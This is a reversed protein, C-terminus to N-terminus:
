MSVYISISIFISIYTSVSLSLSSWMGLCVRKKKKSYKPVTIPECATTLFCISVKYGWQCCRAFCCNFIVVSVSVRYRWCASLKCWWWSWEHHETKIKQGHRVTCPIGTRWGPILGTVGVAPACLQLWQVALSTGKKKWTATKYSCGYGKQGCGLVFERRLAKLGSTDKYLTM